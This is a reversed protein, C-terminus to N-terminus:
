TALTDRMAPLRAEIWCALPLLRQADGERGPVAAETSRLMSCVLMTAAETNGGHFVDVYSSWRHLYDQVLGAGDNAAKQPGTSAGIFKAPHSLAFKVLAQLCENLVADPNKMRQACATQMTSLCFMLYRYRSDPLGLSLVLPADAGGDTTKEFLNGVVTLASDVQRRHTAKGTFWGM